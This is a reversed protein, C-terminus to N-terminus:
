SDRATRQLMDTWEPATTGFAEILHKLVSRRATRHCAQLFEEVVYCAEEAPFDPAWSLANDSKTKRARYLGEVIGLCLAEGASTLGVEASRKMDGILEEVAEALLDCAAQGPEVYGWSHAGARGNLADLPVGMVRDFVDTAIDTASSSSVLETAVQEAKVRL